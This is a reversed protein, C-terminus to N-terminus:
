PYKKEYRRIYRELERHVSRCHHCNLSSYICIHAQEEPATQMIRLPLQPIDPMPELFLELNEPNSVIRGFRVDTETIVKRLRDTNAVLWVGVVCVVGTVILLWDQWQPVPVANSLVYSTALVIEFGILAHFLVCLKCWQGVAFQYFTLYAIAPLALVGALLLAVSVAEPATGQLSFFLILLGSLSCALGIESLSFIGFPRAIPQSLISRCGSDPGSACLHELLVTNKGNAQRAMGECLMIGLSKAFVALWVLASVENLWAVVMTLVPLLALFGLRLTGAVIKARQYLRNKEFEHQGSDADSQPLLVVDAVNESLEHAKVTLEGLRGDVYTVYQGTAILVAFTGEGDTSKIHILAPVKISALDDPKLKEARKQVGWEGLCHVLSMLPGSAYHLELCRESTTQNVRVDLAILLNAVAVSPNDNDGTEITWRKMQIKRAM